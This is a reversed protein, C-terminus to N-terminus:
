EVKQMASMQTVVPLSFGNVFIRSQGNKLLLRPFTINEYTDTQGRSPPTCGGLCVGRPCASVGGTAFGGSIAVAASPVCGVPICEKKGFDETEVHVVLTFKFHTDLWPAAM